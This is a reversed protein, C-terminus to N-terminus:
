GAAGGRREARPQAIASKPRVVPSRRATGPADPRRAACSARPAAAAVVAEVPRGTKAVGKRRWGM